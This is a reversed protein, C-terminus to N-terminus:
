HIPNKTNERIIKDLENKKFRILRGLKVFEIRREFIRRRLWSEKVHLYECAETISLLKENM